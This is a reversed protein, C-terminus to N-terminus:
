ACGNVTAAITDVALSTSTNPYGMPRHNVMVAFSVWRGQGDKTLGALTNVGTLSGTKAFVEDRACSASGNFRNTLTGPLAVHQPWM